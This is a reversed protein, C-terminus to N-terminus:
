LNHDLIFGARQLERVVLLIDRDVKGYYGLCYSLVEFWDPKYHGCSMCDYQIYYLLHMRITEKNTM